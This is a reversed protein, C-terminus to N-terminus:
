DLFVKKVNAKAMSVAEAFTKGEVFNVGENTEQASMTGCLMWLGLMLCSLVKTRM